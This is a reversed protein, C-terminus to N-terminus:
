LKIMEDLTKEMEKETEERKTGKKEVELPTLKQISGLTQKKKAIKPLKLNIPKDTFQSGIYLGLLVSLLSFLWTILIVIILQMNM